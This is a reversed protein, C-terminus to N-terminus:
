IAGRGKKARPSALALSAADLWDTLDDIEHHVYASHDDPPANPARLWSWDVKVWATTMGMDHAPKLNRATDEFLMAGRPRIAHREVLMTYVTPDPKPLYDAAHIDFVDEFRGAIGLKALIRGAHALTGNTFVLKRGPLRDLAAGLRPNALIPALDLDHVYDLYEDRDVNHEVMLGRLTTGYKRLYEKQVLRAKDLPLGLVRASMENIRRDVQEWLRSDAPYLTNDLDFLWTEVHHLALARTSVSKRM